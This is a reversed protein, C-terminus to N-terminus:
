NISITSAGNLGFTIKKLGKAGCATTIETLTLDTEVHATVTDGSFSGSTVTGTADFSGHGDMTAGGTQSSIHIVSPNLKVTGDTKWKVTIDINAPQVGLLGACTTMTTTGVGKSKGATIHTGDGSGSMCAAPIKAKLKLAGAGMDTNTLAPKIKIQGSNTVCTGVMGTGDIGSAHAPSAGVAMFALAGLAAGITAISRVKMMM